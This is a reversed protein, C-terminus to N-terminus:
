ASRKSGFSPGARCPRETCRRVVWGTTVRTLAHLLENGPHLWHFSLTKEGGERGVRPFRPVKSFDGRHLHAQSFPWRASHTPKRSRPSDPQLMKCRKCRGDSWIKLKEATARPVLQEPRPRSEDELTGNVRGLSLILGGKKWSQTWGCGTGFEMRIGHRRRVRAWRPGGRVPRAVAVVAPFARSM